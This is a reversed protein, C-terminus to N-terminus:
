ASAKTLKVFASPVAPKGDFMATGLYKYGNHDIDFQNVINAQEPLNGYYGARWDGLFADHLAIREDLTVPYGNIFYSKGENTVIDNKSSDQLQKIDQFLTKKSMVFQANADFAGPLLSVLTNINDTTLSSAAAVTVSNTADFTLTSMGAAESTGSGSLILNSIKNGISRGLKGTLWPEFASISMASVSRSIEFMKVVEYAFLKVQKLSVDEATIAAGEAHTSADEAADDLPVECYGPIQSLNIMSLLPAYQKAITIIDNVITTPVAPGVSSSGTTMTRSESGNVMSFTREQVPNLDSRKIFNLWAARYMDGGVSMDTTEHISGGQAGNIPMTAVTRLEGAEDAKALGEILKARKAKAAENSKRTEEMEADIAKVRAEAADVDAASMEDTGALKARIQEKEALMEEITM